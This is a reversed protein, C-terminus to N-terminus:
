SRKSLRESNELAHMMKVVAGVDSVKAVAKLQNGQGTGYYLQEWRTKKAHCDRCCTVLNDVDRMQSPSYEIPVVHDVVTGRTLKGDQKCYQCLHYDRKLVVERLSTWAKTHYFKNQEAKVPTSYRKIHNYAWQQQKVKKPNGQRSELYAERRSLYAREQDMHATCYLHGPVALHKCDMARCTRVRPM